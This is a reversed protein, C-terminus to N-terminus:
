RRVYSGYRVVMTEEKIGSCFSRLVLIFFQVSRRPVEQGLGRISCPYDQSFGSKVSLYGLLCSEYIETYPGLERNDVRENNKEIQIPDKKRPGKERHERKTM